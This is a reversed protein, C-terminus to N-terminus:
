EHVEHDREREPRAADAEKLRRHRSREQAVADLVGVAEGVADAQLRDLRGDADAEAEEEERALADREGHQLPHRLHGLDVDVLADLPNRLATAHGSVSFPTSGASSPAAASASPN